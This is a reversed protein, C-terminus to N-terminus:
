NIQLVQLAERGLTLQHDALKQEFRNMTASAPYSESPNIGGSDGKGPSAQRLWRPCDGTAKHCFHNRPTRTFHYSRGGILKIVAGTSNVSGILAFIRSTDSSRTCPKWRSGSPSIARREPTSCGTTISRM